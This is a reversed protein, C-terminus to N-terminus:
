QKKTKKRRRRSVSAGWLEVEVANKQFIADLRRPHLSRDVGIIRVERDLEATEEANWARISSRM